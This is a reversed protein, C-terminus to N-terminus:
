QELLVCLTGYIQHVAGLLVLAHFQNNVIVLEFIGINFFVFLFKLFDLGLIFFLFYGM